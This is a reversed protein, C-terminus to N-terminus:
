IPVNFFSFSSVLKGITDPNSPDIRRIGVPDPTPPASFLIFNEM